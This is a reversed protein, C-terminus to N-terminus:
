RPPVPPWRTGTAWLSGDKGFSIATLEPIGSAVSECTASGLDCANITGGIPNHTIEVAVWSVEDLEAVYLRGDPGFALDIISTFGGDLLKV